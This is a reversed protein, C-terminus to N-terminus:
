KKCFERMFDYFKSEKSEYVSIVVHFSAPFEYYNEVEQIATTGEMSDTRQFAQGFEEMFKFALRRPVVVDLKIFRMYISAKAVPSQNKPKRRLTGLTM